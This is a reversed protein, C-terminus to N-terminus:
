GLSLLILSPLFLWRLTLFYSLYVALSFELPWCHNRWHHSQSHTLTRGSHWWSHYGMGKIMANPFCLYPSRQQTGPWGPPYVSLSLAQKLFSIFFDYDSITAFQLLSTITTSPFVAWNTSHKSLRYFAGFKTELLVSYFQAQHLVGTIRASKISAPTWPWGLSCSVWYPSQPHLSHILIFTCRRLLSFYEM